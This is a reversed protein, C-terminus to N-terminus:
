ANEQENIGCIALLATQAKDMSEFEPSADGGDGDRGYEFCMTGYHIVAARIAPARHADLATIIGAAMTPLYDTPIAVESEFGFPQVVATFTYLGLEKAVAEIEAPDHKTM